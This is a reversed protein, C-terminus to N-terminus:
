PPSPSRNAPVVSRVSRDPPTRASPSRQQAVPAEPTPLPSTGGPLRRTFEKNQEPHRRNAASLEDLRHRKACTCLQVKECRPKENGQGAAARDISPRKEIPDLRLSYSSPPPLPHPGAIGLQTAFLHTLCSLPGSRPKFAFFFPFCFCAPKPPAIARARRSLSRTAAHPIAPRIM